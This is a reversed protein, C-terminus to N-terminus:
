YQEKKKKIQERLEKRDMKMKEEVLPSMSGERFVGKAFLRSRM